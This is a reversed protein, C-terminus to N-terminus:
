EYSQVVPCVMKVKSSRTVSCGVVFFIMVSPVFISVGYPNDTLGAFLSKSTQSAWVDVTVPSTKQKSLFPFNLYEKSVPNLGDFITMM